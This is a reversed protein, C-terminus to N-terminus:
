GYFWFVATFPVRWLQGRSLKGRPSKKNPLGGRTSLMQVAKANKLLSNSGTHATITTTLWPLSSNSVSVPPMTVRGVVQVGNPNSLDWFHTGYSEGAGRAKIYYSGLKKGGPVDYLKAFAYRQEWSEGNFLYLVEGEGFLSQVPKVSSPVVLSYPVSPPVVDQRWFQYEAYFPVKLVEHPRQCSSTMPVGGQPKLRQIYSVLGSQGEFHHSTVQLLAESLGGPIPYSLIVKATVASVRAGSEIADAPNNFLTWTGQHKSNSNSNRSFSYAGIITKSDVTSLLDASAATLEWKECSCKYSHHGNSTKVRMHPSNGAPPKLYEDWGHGHQILSLVLAAQLLGLLMLSGRKM